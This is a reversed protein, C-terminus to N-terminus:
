LKPPIGGPPKPPVAPGPTPSAPPPAGPAPHPAGPLGSPPASPAPVKPPPKPPGGPGGGFKPVDNGAPTIGVKGLVANAGQAIPHAYKAKYAALTLHGDPAPMADLGMSIRAENVTIITSADGPSLPMAPESSSSESSSSSEPMEPTPPAVTRTMKGGGPTDVTHQVKGGLTGTADSFMQNQKEEAQQSETEVRRWEEAANLGLLKSAEENATQVSLYAKQGTAQFLMTGTVQKDQPTAQFYPGWELEV